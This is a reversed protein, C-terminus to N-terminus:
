EQTAGIVWRARHWESVHLLPRGNQDWPCRSFRRGCSEFVAVARAHPAPRVPGSPMSPAAWPEIEGVADRCQQQLPRRRREILKGFRHPHRHQGEHPTTNPPTHPPPPPTHPPAPPPPPHSIRAATGESGLTSTWPPVGALIVLARRAFNGACPETDGAVERRRATMPFFFFGHLCGRSFGSSCNGWRKRITNRFERFNGAARNGGTRLNLADLLQHSNPVLL